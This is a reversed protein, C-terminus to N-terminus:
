FLAAWIFGSMSVLSIFVGKAQFDHWLPYGQGEAEGSMGWPAGGPM